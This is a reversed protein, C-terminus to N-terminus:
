HPEWVLHGYPEGYHYGQDVWVYRGVEDGVRIVATGTHPDRLNLSYGAFPGDQVHQAAVRKAIGRFSGYPNRLYRAWAKPDVGAARIVKPDVRV